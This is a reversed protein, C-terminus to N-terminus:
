GRRRVGGGSGCESRRLVVMSISVSSAMSGSHSRSKHFTNICDPGTVLKSAEGTFDEDFKFVRSSMEVRVSILKKFNDRTVLIAQLGSNRSALLFVVDVEHQEQSSVVAERHQVTVVPSGPLHM